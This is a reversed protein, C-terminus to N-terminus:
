PNEIQNMLNPMKGLIIFAIYKEYSKIYLKRDIKKQHNIM